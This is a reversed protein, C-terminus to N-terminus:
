GGSTKTIPRYTKEKAYAAWIPLAQSLWDECSHASITPLKFHQWVRNLNSLAYENQLAPADNQKSLKKGDKGIVLPLHWYASPKSNLARTLAVQRATTNILDEGRVIMSVQSNIDDVVGALHYSWFGDGRLLVFDGSTRELQESQEGLNLDVWFTNAEPVRFRISRIKKEPNYGLRCTGPYIRNEGMQRTTNANEIDQRTCTCAFTYGRQTLHTLAANYASHNKSQILVEKDWLLQHARLAQLISETWKANCRDEDTDEIRVLWIGKNVRADLYSAVATALSGLHLPGTPSPAFRSIYNTM